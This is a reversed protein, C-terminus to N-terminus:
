APGDTQSALWKGNKRALIETIEQLANWLTNESVQVTLTKGYEDTISAFSPEYENGGGYVVFLGRSKM